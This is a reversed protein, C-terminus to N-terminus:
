ISKVVFTPSTTQARMLKERMLKLIRRIQRKDLFKNREPVSKIPCSLRLFEYFDELTKAGKRTTRAATSINTEYLDWLETVWRERALNRPRGTTQTEGLTDAAFTEFDQLHGLLKPLKEPDTFHRTFDERLISSVGGIRQRLNPAQNAIKSLDHRLNRQGKLRRSNRAHDSYREAERWVAKLLAQADSPADPRLKRELFALLERERM